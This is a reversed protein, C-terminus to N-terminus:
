NIREIRANMVIDLSTCADFSLASRREGRIISEMKRDSSKSKLLFDVSAFKWNAAAVYIMKFVVSFNAVVVHGLLGHLQLSYNQLLHRFVHM